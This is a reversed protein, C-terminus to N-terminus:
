LEIIKYGSLDNVMSVACIIKAYNDADEITYDETVSSWLENGESDQYIIMFQKEKPLNTGAMKSFDDITHM